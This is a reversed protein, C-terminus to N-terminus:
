EKNEQERVWNMIRLNNFSTPAWKLDAFCDEKYKANFVKEPMWVYDGWEFLLCFGPLDEGFPVEEVGKIEKLFTFGTMPKAKVIEVGVYGEGDFEHMDAENKFELM